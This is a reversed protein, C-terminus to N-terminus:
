AAAVARRLRARVDDFLFYPRTEPTADEALLEARRLEAQQHAPDTSYHELGEREIPFPERFELVAAALDRRDLATPYGLCRLEPYCVAELYATVHLPVRTRYGGVSARSIGHHVTHSSNGPWAGGAGDSLAAALMTDAFPEIELTAAFQDLCALPRTVLDEYRVWAFRPHSALHLAFAVSKRWHRAVFLTPKPRGGFEPGRGDHLSAWVDRPDRIIMLCRAGRELLHPVFEECITEKGGFLRAAPDFSLDRYLQSVTGHFDDPELRALARALVDPHPRTYQGDFSAMDAFVRTLTGVDLRYASLFRTFEDVTFRQELFLPDLPYRGGPDGCSRLFDRKAQLFVLPFPQSLISLAPHGGLLRGLLSTGSRQMGTVFLTEFAHTTM